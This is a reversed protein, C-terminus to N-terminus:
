RADPPLGLFGLVGGVLIEVIHPDDLDDPNRAVVQFLSTRLSHFIVLALLDPDRGRHLTADSRVLRAIMALARELGGRVQDTQEMLPLIEMVGAYLVRNRRYLDVMEEIGIRLIALPTAGVARTAVTRMLDIDDHIRREFFAGILSKKDPFYQYLSGVSVGARDAVQATTTHAYGRKEFM